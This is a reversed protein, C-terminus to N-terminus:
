CKVLITFIPLYLTKKKKKKRRFISVNQNLKHGCSILYESIIERVSHSFNNQIHLSKIVINECRSVVFEYKKNTDWKSICIRSDPVALYLMYSM